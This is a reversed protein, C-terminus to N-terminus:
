ATMWSGQGVKANDYGRQQPRGYADTGGVPIRKAFRLCMMGYRSASLLDDRIKVIQPTGLKGVPARHYLEYEEWWDDLHEAVKWRGTQMREAMEIVGAEVGNSGDPFTAHEPLMPLKQKRYLDALREGSGKDHQLGDHPWAIPGRFARIAAAHIAPVEKNKRYTKTIYIIDSEPDWALQAAATPHDWGIDFGTIWRVTSPLRTVRWALSDRAFPFVRGQGMGPKGQTRAELEHPQYSAIIQARREPTYHPADDITMVIDARDESDEYLFRYVVQSIGLLPTFTLMVMGGKGNDGNNTRTLGESYIDAPPEEDFWVIDVTDSQWKARGQDYTKLIVTSMGGSVHRIFGMAIAHPVHARAPPDGLICRAPIMGTGLAGEGSPGGRGFLMRQLGDRTSEATESGAWVVVPHDFRRGEWWDPYLGTLHMAIEAGGALTKGVQNAARLLRERKYAGARHFLLQKPYPKYNELRNRSKSENLQNRLRTQLAAIADDSLADADSWDDIAAATPM